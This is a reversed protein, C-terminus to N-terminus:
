TLAQFHLCLMYSIFINSSPFPSMFMYLYLSLYRFLCLPIVMSEEQMFKKKVSAVFLSVVAMIGFGMLGSWTFIITEKLDLGCGFHHLPFFFPCVFLTLFIMRSGFNTTYSSIFFMLWRLVSWSVNPQRMHLLSELLQFGIWSMTLIKGQFDLDLLSIRQAKILEQLNYIVKVCWVSFSKIM